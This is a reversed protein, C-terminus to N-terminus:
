KKRKGKKKVQKRSKSKKVPKKRSKRQAPKRKAGAKKKKKGKSRKKKVPSSRSGVALGFDVKGIGIDYKTDGKGKSTGLAFPSSSKDMSFIGGGKASFDIISGKSKEGSLGVEGRSLSFDFNDKRGSDLRVDSAIMDATGRAKQGAMELNSKLYALPETVTRISQAVNEKRAGWLDSKAKRLDVKASILGRKAKIKKVVGATKEDVRAQKEKQKEIKAQHKEEKEKREVEKVQEDLDIDAQSKGAHGKKIPFAEKQKDFDKGMADTDIDKDDYHRTGKVEGTDEDRFFQTRSRKTFFGM